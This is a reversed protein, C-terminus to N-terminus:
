PFIPVPFWLNKGDLLFQNTTEFMKIKPLIHSLGEWQSINKLITLVVLWYLHGTFKRFGVWHVLLNRPSLWWGPLISLRRQRDDYNGDQEHSCQTQCLTRWRSVFLYTSNSASALHVSLVYYVHPLWVDPTQLTGFRMTHKKPFMNTKPPGQIFYVQYNSMGVLLVSCTDLGMWFTM